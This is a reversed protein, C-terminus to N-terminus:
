NNTTLQSQSSPSLSSPKFCVDCKKVISELPGGQCDLLQFLERNNNTEGLVTNSAQGFWILHITARNFGNFLHSILAVYHPIWHEKPQVIVRDGQSVILHGDLTTGKNFIKRDSAM